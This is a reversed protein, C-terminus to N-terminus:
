IKKKKKIHMILMGGGFGFLLHMIWLSGYTALFTIFFSILYAKYSSTDKTNSEIDEIKEKAFISITIIIANLLSTLLFANNFNTSKFNKFFPM